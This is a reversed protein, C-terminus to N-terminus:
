PRRVASMSRLIAIEFYRRTDARTLLYLFLSAVLVGSGSRALDHAVILTILDGLGNVAFLVVAARWSWKKGALLGLATALAVVALTLLLAGSLRGLGAFAVYAPRNLNWMRDWIPNPFLLSIGTVTAIVAALSLIAAIVV